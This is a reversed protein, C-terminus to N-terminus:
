AVSAGTTAGLRPYTSAAPAGILEILLDHIDERVTAEACEVLDVRVATRDRKIGIASTRQERRHMGAQLPHGLSPSLSSGWSCGVVSTLPFSSAFRSQRERVRRHERVGVVPSRGARVLPRHTLAVFALDHSELRDLSTM